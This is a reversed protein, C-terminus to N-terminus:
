RRAAALDKWGVLVFGQARLFARFEPSSVVDLDQRRWAAGWDPHDTTAAWMEEDSYALHVVM